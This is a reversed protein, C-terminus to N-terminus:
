GYRRFCQLDDRQGADMRPPTWLPADHGEVHHRHPLGASARGMDEENWYLGAYSASDSASRSRGGRAGGAPRAAISGAVARGRRQKRRDRNGRRSPAASPAGAQKAELVLRRSRMTGMCAKDGLAPHQGTGLEVGRRRPPVARQSRKASTWSSKASDKRCVDVHRENATQAKNEERHAQAAVSHAWRKSTKVWLTRHVGRESGGRVSAAVRITSRRQSLVLGDGEYAQSSEDGVIHSIARDYLMKPGDPVDVLTPEAITVAWGQKCKPMEQSHWEEEERSAKPMSLPPPPRRNRVRTWWTGREDKDMQKSASEVDADDWPLDDLAESEHSIMREAYSWLMEGATLESALAERVSWSCTAYGGGLGVGPANRWRPARTVM